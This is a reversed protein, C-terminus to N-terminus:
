SAYVEVLVLPRSRIFECRLFIRFAAAAVAIAAGAAFAAVTLDFDASGCDSDAALLGFLFGAFLRREKGAGDRIAVQEEDGAFARVELAVDLGVGFV